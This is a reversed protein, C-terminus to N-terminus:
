VNILVQANKPVNFGSINVTEDCQRPILLPAPPHLRLTEKVVAELFPLKSIHSEEITEYKGIAQCTRFLSKTNM